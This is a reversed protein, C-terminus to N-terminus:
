FIFTDLRCHGKVFGADKLEFVIANTNESGNLMDETRKSTDKDRNNDAWM